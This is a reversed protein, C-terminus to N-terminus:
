YIGHGVIKSCVSYDTVFYHKMMPEPCAKYTSYFSIYFYFLVSLINVLVFISMIAATFIGVRMKAKNSAKVESEFLTSLFYCICFIFIPSGSALAIQRGNFWFYNGDSFILFLHDYPLCLIFYVFTSFISILTVRAIFLTILRPTSIHTKKM